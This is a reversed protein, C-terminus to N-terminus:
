LSQRAKIIEAVIEAPRRDDTIIQFFQGYGAAREKLLASIKEQPNEGQLLPRKDQESGTVRKVIEEVSATLCFIDGNKQLTEVNRKDLLMKGGTA